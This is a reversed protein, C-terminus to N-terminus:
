PASRTPTTMPKSEPRPSREIVRALLRYTLGPDGLLRGLQRVVQETELIRRAPSPARLVAQLVHARRRVGSGEEMEQHAVHFARCEPTMSERHKREFAELGRRRVKPNTLRPDSHFVYRALPEQVVGVGARRCCRLWLDWDEASEFTDDITLEDGLVSPRAMVFSFSGPFNIWLMQESTFTSPGRFRRAPRRTGDLEILHDCSVIGARPNQVMYDVQRALKNPEWRDDDDLFAVLEGNVRQLAVNRAGAAGKNVDLRCLKVRKDGRATRDVVDDVPARSADDVILVEFRAYTQALVSSLARVLRDPRDHTPMVVSVLPEPAGPPM